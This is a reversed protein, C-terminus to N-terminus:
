RTSRATYWDYPQGDEAQYVREVSFEAKILCAEVEEREILLIRESFEVAPRGEYEEVRTAMTLRDASDLTVTFTTLGGHHPMPVTVVGAEVLPRYAATAYYELCLTGGPRLVDHVHGLAVILEERSDVCALSGMTSYATAFDGDVPLPRRLDAAVLSVNPPVGKARFEDLMPESNDVGVVEAAIGAVPAAIRGTGVGIELVREGTVYPRLREVAEETPMAASILSDYVTAVEPGYQVELTM